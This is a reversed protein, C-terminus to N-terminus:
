IKSIAPIVKNKNHSAIKKIHNLVETSIPVQINDANFNVDKMKIIKMFLRFPEKENYSMILNDAINELQSIEEAKATTSVSFMYTKSNNSLLTEKITQLISDGYTPSFLLLNLAAGFIMIGPYNESLRSSAMELAKNWVEPKVLNANITNKDIEKIDDIDTDLQVFVIKDNYDSLNINAIGKISESIFEKNPYQLSLFVVSGGKKLWASVFTEGILPKGSGGPGTIITTSNLPLGNPM